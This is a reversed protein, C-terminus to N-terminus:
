TGNNSVGVGPRQLDSFVVPMQSLGASAYRWWRQQCLATLCNFKSRVHRHSSSSSSSVHCAKASLESSNGPNPRPSGSAPPSSPSRPCSASPTWRWPSSRRSSSSPRMSSAAPDDLSARWPSRSRQPPSWNWTPAWSVPRSAYRTAPESSCTASPWVPASPTRAPMIFSAPSPSTSRWSTTPPPSPCALRSSATRTSWAPSTGGIINEELVTVDYSRWPTECWHCTLM